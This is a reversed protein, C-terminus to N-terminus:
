EFRKNLEQFVQGHDCQQLMHLVHMTDPSSNGRLQHRSKCSSQGPTVYRCKDRLFYQERITCAISLWAHVFLGSAERQDPIAEKRKQLNLKARWASHHM